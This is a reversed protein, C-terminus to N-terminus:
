GEFCRSLWGGGRLVVADHLKEQVVVDRYTVEGAEDARHDKLLEPM